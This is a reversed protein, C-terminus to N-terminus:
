KTVPPWDGFLYANGDDDWMPILSGAAIEKAVGQANRAQEITLGGLVDGLSDANNRAVGTAIAVAAMILQVDDFHALAVLAKCVELRQETPKGGRGTLRIPRNAKTCAKMVDNVIARCNEPLEQALATLGEIEAQTVERGEDPAPARKPKARAVPALVPAITPFPLQHEREIMTLMAIIRDGQEISIPDGSKLTPVAEPWSYAVMQKAEPNALIVGLRERVSKRWDDDVTEPTITAAMAPLSETPTFPQLPKVKRFQRVQMAVQLAEFGATLDVWHLTCHASGPEIHIIVARERSVAPMPERIDQSGDAAVGQTYLADAHAYIAMQIAWALNGFKLSTLSGTKNDFLFREGGIELVGDCTGAIEYADLVVMREVYEPLVRAGADALAQHVAAVDAAYQPPAQYNPNTYSQELMAHIATGLDRRVTAGGAESARKCIGDITKRDDPDAATLLGYLDARAALGLATMRANWTMLSSTDDLAKAVTTARTYGTVKGGQPPLVQYRGWRDRRVADSVPQGIINTM